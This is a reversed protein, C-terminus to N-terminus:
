GSTAPHVNGDAKAACQECNCPVLRCKGTVMDCITLWGLCVMSGRRPQPLYQRKRSDTGDFGMLMEFNVIDEIRQLDSM